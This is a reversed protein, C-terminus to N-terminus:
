TETAGYTGAVRVGEQRARILLAPDPAQGGLLVRDFVRLADAGPVSDLLRQLQIPVLSTYRPGDLSGAVAAFGM